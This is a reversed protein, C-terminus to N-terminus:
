SLPLLRHAQAVRVAQVRNTVDLKQYIRHLHVKVTGVTLHYTDAIAQNSYDQAVLTLIEIERTTLQPISASLQPNIAGFQPSIRGFLSHLNPINASAQLTYGALRVQFFGWSSIPHSALVSIIKNAQDPTDTQTFWMACLWLTMYTILDAEFHHAIPILQCIHHYLSNPQKHQIYAWGYAWACWFRDLPDTPHLTDLCTLASQPQHQILHSLGNLVIHAYQLAPFIVMGRTQIQQQYTAIASTDGLLWGM